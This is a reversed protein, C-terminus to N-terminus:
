KSGYGEKSKIARVIVRKYMYMHKYKMILIYRHYQRNICRPTYYTYSYIYANGAKYITASKLM